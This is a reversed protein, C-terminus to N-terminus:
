RHMQSRGFGDREAHLALQLLARIRREEEEPVSHLRGGESKDAMVALGRHVPFCDSEKFSPM